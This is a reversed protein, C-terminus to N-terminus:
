PKSFLRRGEQYEAQGIEGCAFCRDLIDLATGTVLMVSQCIVLMGLFLRPRRWDAPM